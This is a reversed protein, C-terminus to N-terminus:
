EKWFSPLLVTFVAFIELRGLIMELSLLLKEFDSFFGFNGAPGVKGLGPGLSTICAISASFSTVLDHGFAAIIFGFIAATSFYVSIFAWITNLISLELIKDGISVRYVMRPHATKKLESYVTKIMVLFRFQKIGGATSGSSAGILSLFMILALISPPWSTYDTSSFGTTTAATVVQFFAYRFATLLDTYVNEKLLVAMSFLTSVLIVALLGKVEYNSFFVRLSRAKFARYYLSLNVAGLVMFVAIVMEVAFSHFAGVSENETSFGGTAVTAFTHNIAQFLSMGCLKLLIVESVTLLLYVVLIARATEKVRPLVKEEIAKSAEFRMLQAGGAGFVPLLSLSFVVFGIGGIWHTTSRWLLVSKPLSEVDSLISAGTTTFGSVSEFYADAFHTIAGSEIYFLASLAPFLFWTLVVVLIAEKVNPEQNKFQIGLLFLSFALFLPYFFSLFLGDHVWLSYVAPFLFSLSLIFLLFTVHRFVVQLRM